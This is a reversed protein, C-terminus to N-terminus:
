LFFKAILEILKEPEELQPSHGVSPMVALKSKKIHKEFVYAYSLPVMKDKGGWIILTEARIYSLYRELDEAIVKRMTAKMVGKTKVYDRKRILFYFINRFFINVPSNSFARKGTRGLFMLIKTKISPKVILGASNCLILKKIAGSDVACLKISVRGGFSHGLLFFEKIELFVMFDIVWNKYDDVSWSKAPPLSKGFGPLDPCIIKYGKKSLGSIVDVWSDSSSNWGHLILLVEGQGAVKYNVNLGSIIAQNEKIGALANSESFSEENENNVENNSESKM